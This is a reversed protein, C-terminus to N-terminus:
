PAVTQPVVASLQVDTVLNAQEAASLGVPTQDVANSTTAGYPTGPTTQIAYTGDSLSVCPWWYVSHIGDCGLAACQQASRALCTAQDPEILYEASQALAPTAILTLFFALRLM